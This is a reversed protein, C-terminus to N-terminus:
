INAPFHNPFRAARTQGFSLMSEAVNERPNVKFRKGTKQLVYEAAVRDKLWMDIVPAIENECGRPYLWPYKDHSSRQVKARVKTAVKAATEGLSAM